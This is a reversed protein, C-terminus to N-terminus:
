IKHYGSVEIRHEEATRVVKEHEECPYRCALGCSSSLSRPVPVIKVMLGQSRMTKEFLLAMHTTDFTAICEM